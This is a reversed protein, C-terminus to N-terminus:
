KTYVGLPDLEERFLFISVQLLKSSEVGLGRAPHFCRRLHSFEAARKEAIATEAADESVV